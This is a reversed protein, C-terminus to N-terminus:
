CYRFVSNSALLIDTEDVIHEGMKKNDDYMGILSSFESILIM